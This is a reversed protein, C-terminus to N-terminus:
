LQAIGATRAASLPLSPINNNKQKKGKGREERDRKKVEEVIQKRGKEPHRCLIVWLPQHM